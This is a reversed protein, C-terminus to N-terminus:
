RSPDQTEQQAGVTKAYIAKLMTTRENEKHIGSVEDAIGFLMGFIALVVLAVGLPTLGLYSRRHLKAKHDHLVGLLATVFSIVIVTPGLM